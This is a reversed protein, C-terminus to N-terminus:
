RQYKWHLPKGEALQALTQELRAARTEDRKAGTLWDVYEKRHSPSFSEWTKNAKANRKLANTLYDPIAVSAPKTKPKPEKPPKVGADKLAVAKQVYGILTKEDPLDEISTIRGFQGMGEADEGRGDLALASAQWFGFSCHQKHAAMGCMIGKYDFHPMSWKMTEQVEPCGAHVVKRLHKLIPRAFPAAKEIYADIRPDKSAM